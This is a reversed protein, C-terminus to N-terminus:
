IPANSDPEIFIANGLALAEAVKKRATALTRQVTGRSVGMQNGAEEQTMGRVDCLQLAEFEERSIRTVALERLPTGAPKFVLEGPHKLTFCCRRQKRPRPSM